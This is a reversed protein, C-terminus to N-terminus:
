PNEADDMLAVASRSWTTLVSAPILRSKRAAKWCRDWGGGLDSM